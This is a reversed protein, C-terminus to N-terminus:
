KCILNHLHLMSQLATIVVGETLSAHSFLSVSAAKSARRLFHLPLPRGLQFKLCRLMVREMQRIQATTFTNDTIYAFDQLEPAYMEEYKSALLM